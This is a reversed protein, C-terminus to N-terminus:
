PRSMSYSFRIYQDAFARFLQELVSDPGVVLALSLLAVVILYEAASQGLVSRPRAGGPPCHRRNM